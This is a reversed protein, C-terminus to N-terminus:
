DQFRSTTAKQRRFFAKSDRYRPKTTETERHQPTKTGLDRRRLKKTKSDRHQPKKTKFDRHRQIHAGLGAGKNFLSELM